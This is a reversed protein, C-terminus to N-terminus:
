KAPTTRVSELWKKILATDSATVWRALNPMGNHVKLGQRVVADFAEYPLTTDRLDPIGRTGSVGGGGHCEACNNHYLRGGDGLAGEKDLIDKVASTAPLAASPIAFTVVRGRADSNGQQAAPGGGLAFAGGWGAVITVYQQGDVEYTIPGAGIGTGIRWEWLERGNEANFALFRGDASGQFVLNGATALTGGNWAMAYPHHWAEKRRVPDWAVLSGSTLEPTLLSFANFDTGTNWNGPRYQFNKNLRYLGLVEQAPLYVLGTKPSFSMPQWNHGGFPTPKVFAMEDAFDQGKVEVPKGTAMDVKEAWTVEVYKDASLLKGNTRDVVYFFGNKPAQMIVKRVQGDIKLDALIMHQTATFDWTDGPTTQYHWTIEGNDPNLALISSLYLNDGGGPSRLHRVWPSGNGTGVYLLDLEPDFAMSDWATGGGGIEWWKGGKWTSAAAELAKSEFGDAPNGPVTYTRWLMEGSAPDYASIYGRVGLEAGGNGIIVKGKVIRPAGTITYPKSQDVTVKEWVLAGTKADLAFLRGDLSGAYVKGNYVAVGRNVVDCCAKPATDGPVKPDYRWLLAGNRADVAFVVSWAGTFFLVGDVAIPTAEHGRTLGTFFTWVPKLGTVNTDNIEELPSYRQESYTRGHTIWNGTDGDAAVLGADSITATRAFAATAAASPEVIPPPATALLAAAPTTSAPGAAAAVVGSAAAPGPSAAPVAAATPIPTDPRSVAPPIEQASAPLSLGPLIHGVILLAPAFWSRRM